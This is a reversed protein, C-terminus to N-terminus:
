RESDGAQTGPAREFRVALSGRRRMRAGPAPNQGTVVWVGPWTLAGLPPGDPDDTTIVLGAKWAVARADTVILGVIDPVTVEDATSPGMWTM